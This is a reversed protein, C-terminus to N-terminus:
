AMARSEAGSEQMLLIVGTSGDDMALPTAIVRIKMHRGRRNAAELLLEERRSRQDRCASIMRLLGEAPMLGFDLDFLARGTVEEPRLGWLEVAAGNWSQVRLEHDLAVVAGPESALVSVLFSNTKDL